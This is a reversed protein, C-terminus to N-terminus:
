SAYSPDKRDMKRRLAPWALMNGVMKLGTAGQDRTKEPTGQPPHNILQTGGALAHIQAECARELFYLRIFAEAVTEGVAMTGHNRLIMANKTGLDAM